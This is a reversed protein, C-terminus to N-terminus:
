NHGSKWSVLEMHIHHDCWAEVKIVDLKSDEPNKVAGKKSYYMRGNSGVASWLGGGRGSGVLFGERETSM